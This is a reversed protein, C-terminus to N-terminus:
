MGPNFKDVFEEENLEIGCAIMVKAVTRAVEQLKYFPTTLFPKMGSLPDDEKNYREDFTMCSMLAACQEVSLDNFVGTFMLEVVVLEQATNIECAARGKTQIVGSADVHGLRKLVRKMKKMEEKMAITQCSRAEDRLLKAKALLESKKEYASILVLRDEQDSDTTLKHSTLRNTLEEARELLTQFAEERIGMDQVPDLLQLGDPFKKKVVSVQIAYKNRAEPTSVDRPPALRIASLREISDLGVTFVRMSVVTSDDDKEVPRCKRNTGTWLLSANEADEINAKSIGSDFHRDVCNLLIDLTYEPGASLSALRGAEGGSGTGQKKKCSVLVGWGYADGDITVDCM